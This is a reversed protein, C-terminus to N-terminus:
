PLREENYLRRTHAIAATIAMGMMAVTGIAGGIDFLLFEHGFLSVRPFFLITFNGVALLIRIETPGFLGHSLRFDSLTYAALYTEISLILFATLMGAAVQWHVYGSVALGMMLFFAGFTDIVHDLYFGYRPRLRNRYRALTGDLSDGLWNVGIFFTAGILGFQSWRAFAYSVGALFQAAFGVATLQDPGIWDPTRRALWALAKRELPATIAEQVRVAERFERATSKLTQANATM